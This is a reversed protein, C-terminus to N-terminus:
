LALWFDIHNIEVSEDTGLVQKLKFVRPSRATLLASNFYTRMFFHNKLVHIRNIESLALTAAEESRTPYIDLM